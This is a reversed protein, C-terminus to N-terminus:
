VLADYFVALWLTEGQICTSTVRHKEHPAITLYDGPKLTLLRGQEFELQAEGKLLMVWEYQTQDHWDGEPTSHGKSIIREIMMNGNGALTEFVEQSLDSPLSQYFNQLMM